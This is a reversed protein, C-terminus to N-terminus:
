TFGRGRRRGRGPKGLVPAQNAPTRAPAGVSTTGRYFAYQDSGRRAVATVQGNLGEAVFVGRLDTTGAEFRSNGTGIVRVQVGPILDGTEAHRVTVRVRGAEARRWCM